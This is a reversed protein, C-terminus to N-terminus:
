GEGSDIPHPSGFEKQNAPGAEVTSTNSLAASETVLVEGIPSLRLAKRVLEVLQTDTHAVGRGEGTLTFAPWVYVDGASTGANATALPDPLKQSAQPSNSVDVGDLVFELEEAKQKWADRERRLAMESLKHRARESDRLEIALICRREWDDGWARLESIELNVHGRQQAWDISNAPERTEKNPGSSGGESPSESLAAPFVTTEPNIGDVFDAVRDQAKGLLAVADTLRTDCGMAEIVAIAQRIALEGASMLQVQNRRPFGALPKNDDKRLRENGARAEKLSEILKLGASRVRGQIDVREDTFLAKIEAIETDTLSM